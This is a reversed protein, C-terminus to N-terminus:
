LYFMKKDFFFTLAGDTQLSGAGVDLVCLEKSSGFREAYEEFCNLSMAWFDSWRDGPNSYLASDKSKIYSDVDVSVIAPLKEQAERIITTKGVGSPGIVYILM